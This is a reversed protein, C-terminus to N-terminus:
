QVSTWEPPQAESFQTEPKGEAAQQLALFRADYELNPGSTGTSTAGLWSRLPEPLIETLNETAPFPWSFQTM